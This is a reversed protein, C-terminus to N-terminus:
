SEANVDVNIDEEEEALELDEFPYAVFQSQPCKAEYAHLFQSRDEPLGMDRTWEFFSLIYHPEPYYVVVILSQEWDEYLETWRRCNEKTKNSWGLFLSPTVVGIVVGIDYNVGTLIGRVKSGIALQQGPKMRLTGQKYVLYVLKFFHLPRM